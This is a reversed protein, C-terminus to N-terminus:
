EGLADALQQRLEDKALGQGPVGDVDSALSRLENYDDPDEVYEGLIADVDDGDSAGGSESAPSAQDSNGETSEDTDDADDTPEFREPFADLEAETPTICDGVAFTDGARYHDKGVVRHTDDSM